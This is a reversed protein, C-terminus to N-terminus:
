CLFNLLFDFRSGVEPLLLFPQHDVVGQNLRSRRRFNGFM